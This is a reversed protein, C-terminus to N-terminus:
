GCKNKVLVPRASPELRCFCADCTYCAWNMAESPVETTQRTEKSFDMSAAADTIELVAKQKEPATLLLRGASSAFLRQLRNSQSLTLLILGIARSFIILIGGGDSFRIPSVTFAAEKRKVSLSVSNEPRCRKEVVDGQENLEVADTTPPEPKSFGLVAGVSDPLM